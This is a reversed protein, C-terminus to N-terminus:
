KTFEVVQVSLNFYVDESEVNMVSLITDNVLISFVLLSMNGISTMFVYVFESCKGFM